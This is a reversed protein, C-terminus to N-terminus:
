ISRPASRLRSRDRWASPLNGQDCTSRSPRGNGSGLLDAAATAAKASGCESGRRMNAFTFGGIAHVPYWWEQWEVAECPDLRGVEGQTLLPGTQVENYPGDTDTLDMQHMTGFGGWGWTWAKKGPVQHHNACAVVGRDLDDNYSGFFDQDCHRPSFRRPTRTTQAAASIKARTIPWNFYKEAGHDTGLTM